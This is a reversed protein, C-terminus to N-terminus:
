DEWSGIWRVRGLIELGDGFQVPLPKRWKPDSTNDSVLFWQEGYQHLRKVYYTGDYQVVYIAGDRPVTDDSDFLLADGDHIRPEMSDGRAYFVHLKRAYLGKRQLSSAKFKLSHTEAYEVATMGDGAAVDQAYATVDTWGYDASAERVADRPGKGTRLWDLNIALARAIDPLFTSTGQDDNEIGALTPYKVGSLKVLDTRSLGRLARAERIRQGVTMM